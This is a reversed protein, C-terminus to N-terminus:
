RGSKLGSLIMDAFGDGIEDPRLSGGPKYWRHAWNVTGLVGMTTLGVPLPPTFTGEDVGQQIIARIAVYYRTAWERSESIWEDKSDAVSVSLNLSDFPAPSIGGQRTFIAHQLRPITLSDFQLYPFDDKEHFHM